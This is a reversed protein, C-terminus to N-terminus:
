RPLRGWQRVYCAFDEATEILDEYMMMQLGMPRDRFTTWYGYNRWFEDRKDPEMDMVAWLMLFDIYDKQRRQHPRAREVPWSIKANLDDITQIDAELPEIYTDWAKNTCIM